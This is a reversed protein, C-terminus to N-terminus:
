KLLGYVTLSHSGAVYVKGNAVTPVIFKVATGAQDRSGNQASSYLEKSCDTADYAHLVAPGNDWASADLTWLIGNTDGSSSVAPSSGPYGFTEGTNSTMTFQGGNNTYCQLPGRLAQVYLYSKWAAPVGFLPGTLAIQQVIQNNDAVHNHGMSDRNIVYLQGGKGGAVMLHAPGSSQDPLLIAGGSGLDHDLDNLQQFNYPTFWDQVKLTGNAPSLKVASDGYDRGGSYANYDGNSVALFINGAADAAPGDGVEWIGGGAGDPTPAFVVNQQLTHADYGLVWGLFPDYDGHSAFAIYVTGNLLLLASRQNAIHPDFVINGNGDNVVGAGKMTAQIVVPSGSREAGTTIDLAHLRQVYKGSEKTKAVVYITGAAADIVPTSTIGVEPAIDEYADPFDTSSQVTTVGNAPDLFSRQWLPSTSKGDADFAYVGDHETAVFVVNHTAGGVSVNPVYLPQGYIEGDVSFSFLKGFTGINVNSPTLTTENPNAGTRAVDYHYTTVSAASSSGSTGGGSGTSTPPPTQAAPDTTSTLGGCGCLVAISAVLPLLGRRM